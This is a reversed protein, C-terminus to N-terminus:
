EPETQAIEGVRADWHRCACSSSLQSVLGQPTDFRPTETFLPLAQKPKAVKARHSPIASFHSSSVCRCETTRRRVLLGSRRVGGGLFIKQSDIPILEQTKLM